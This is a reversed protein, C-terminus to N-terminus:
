SIRLYPEYLDHYLKLNQGLSFAADIAGTNREQAESDETGAAAQYFFHACVLLAHIWIAPHLRHRFIAYLQEDIRRSIRQLDTEPPTDGSEFWGGTAAEPVLIDAFVSAFPELTPRAEPMDLVIANIPHM